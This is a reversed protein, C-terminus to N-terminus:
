ESNTQPLDEVKRSLPRVLLQAVGGQQLGKVGLGARLEGAGCVAVPIEVLQHEFAAVTIFIKSRTESFDM